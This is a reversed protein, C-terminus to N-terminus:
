HWVASVTRSDARAGEGDSDRGHKRTTSSPLLLKKVSPRLNPQSISKLAAEEEPVRFLATQMVHMRQRDVGIDRAWPVLSPDAPRNSAPPPSASSARSELEDIVAGDDDTEADSDAPPVNLQKSPLNTKSPAEDVDEEPAESLYDDESDSVYARFRTM